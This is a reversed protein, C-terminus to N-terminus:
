KDGYKPKMVDYFFRYMHQKSLDLISMGIFIPKDLKQKLKQKEVRVLNENIVHSYKFSPNTVCVCM